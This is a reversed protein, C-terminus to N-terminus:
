AAPKGRRLGLYILTLAITTFPLVLISAPINAAIPVVLDSRDTADQPRVGGAILTSVLFSVAGGILTVAVVRGFTRWWVGRVLERCRRLADLYSGGELIVVQGVFQFWIAMVLGPILLAILGLFTLVASLLVTGVLVSSRPLVVRLVERLPTDRGDLQAVVAYAVAATCIPMVLLYQAALAIALIQESQGRPDPSAAALAVIALGVPVSPIAILAIYLRFRARYLGAARRIV